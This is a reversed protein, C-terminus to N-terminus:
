WSGSAGGGSSSGGGFSSGSSSDDDDPLEPIKKEYEHHYDCHKCDEIIEELGSSNTTAPRITNSIIELTKYNCQRCKSIATFWFPYRLKKTRQCNGCLWVDYDVSKLSEEIREPLLLYKDDVHEKLRDMKFSCKPCDKPKNRRLMFLSAIAYSSVTGIALITVAVKWFSFGVFGSFISILLLGTAFFTLFKMGPIVKDTALVQELHEPHKDVLYNKKISGTNPTFFNSLKFIVSILISGAIFILFWLSQSNRIEDWVNSAINSNAQEPSDLLGVPLSDENNLSPEPNFVSVVRHMGSLIGQQYNDRKFQPIFKNNIIKKAVSNKNTNDYAIGTAIRMKRDKHSVLVLVGDNKSADGVGWYNFLGKGFGEITNSTNPYDSMRRITVLTIEVGSDAKLNKLKKTIEKEAQDDLLNAWDNVYINEYDPYEASVCLNCLIIFFIFLFFQQLKKNM